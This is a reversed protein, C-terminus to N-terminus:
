RFTLPNGRRQDGRGPADSQDHVSITTMPGTVTWARALPRADRVLSALRSCSTLGPLRIHGPAADGGTGSTLLSLGGSGVLPPRPESRPRAVGLGSTFPRSGEARDIDIM